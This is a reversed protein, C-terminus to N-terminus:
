QLSFSIPIKVQSVFPIGKFRAPEWRPMLGVLRVAEEDLGYGLGREVEVQDIVGNELVRFSILVIGEVGYERASEPYTLHEQFVSVLTPGDDPYSAYRIIPATETAFVEFSIPSDSPEAVM